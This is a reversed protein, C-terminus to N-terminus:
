KLRAGLGQSLRRNIVAGVGPFQGPRGLKAKIEGQLLHSLGGVDIDQGKLGGELLIGKGPPTRPEAAKGLTDKAGKQLLSARLCPQPIQATPHRPPSLDPNYHTRQLQLLKGEGSVDRM